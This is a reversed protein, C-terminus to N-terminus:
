SRTIGLIEKNEDLCKVILERTTPESGKYPSLFRKLPTEKLPVGLNALLRCSYIAPNITDTEYLSVHRGSWNCAPIGVTFRGDPEMNLSSIRSLEWYLNNLSIPQMLNGKFIEGGSVEREFPSMKVRSISLYKNDESKQILESLHDTGFITEYRKKTEQYNKDLNGQFVHIKVCSMGRKNEELKYYYWGPEDPRLTVTAEWLLQDGQTTQFALDLYPSEQWQIRQNEKEVSEQKSYNKIYDCTFERLGRACLYGPLLIAPWGGVGMYYSGFGVVGVAASLVMGTLFQERPTCEYPTPKHYLHFTTKVEQSSTSTEEM